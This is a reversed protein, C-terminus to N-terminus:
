GKVSGIMVGKVFYKQIFPYIMLVPVTAVIISSYKLSQALKERADINMEVGDLTKSVMSSNALIDKLVLQLPYKDMDNIYVLASYYDNWHGIAFYLTVVALVPKSLPLVVKTLYQASNAGDLFAAEQLANPISNMFYNRVILTNYVSVAGGLILCLRSNILGISKILLYMPILGGSFYMTILLFVMVPGRIVFDKRSLPYAACVTFIMDVLTGVVTYYITNLYSLWIENHRFLEKYALLSFGKPWILVKGLAVQNPDSFSAIVVFWLPWVFVVVFVAM